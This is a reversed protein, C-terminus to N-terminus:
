VEGIEAIKAIERVTVGVCKPDAKKKDRLLLVEKLRKARFRELTRLACHPGAITCTFTRRINGKFQQEYTIKWVTQRAM